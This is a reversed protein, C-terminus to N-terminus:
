SDKYIPGLYYSTCQYILAKSSRMLSKEAQKAQQRLTHMQQQDKKKNEFAFAKHKAALLDQLMAHWRNQFFVCTSRLNSTSNPHLHFFLVFVKKYIIYNVKLQNVDARLIIHLLICLKNSISAFDCFEVPKKLGNM